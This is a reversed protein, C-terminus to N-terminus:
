WKGVPCKEWTVRTKPATFCGCHACQDSILGSLLPLQFKDLCADCQARRAHVVPHNEPLFVKQVQQAVWGPM